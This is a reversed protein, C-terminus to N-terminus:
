DQDDVKSCARRVSGTHVSGQKHQAVFGGRGRETVLCEVVREVRQVVLEALAIQPDKEFQVANADSGPPHGFPAAM